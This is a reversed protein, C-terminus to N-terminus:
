VAPLVGTIRCGGRRCTISHHRDTQRYTQRDTMRAHTTDTKHALINKDAKPPANLAPEGRPASQLGVQRVPVHHGLPGYPVRRGIGRGLRRQQLRNDRAPNVVDMGPNAGCLGRLLHKTKPPTKITNQPHQIGQGHGPQCWVFGATLKPHKKNYRITNEPPNGQRHKEKPHERPMDGQEM